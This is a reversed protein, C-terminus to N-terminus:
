VSTGLIDMVEEVTRCRLVAEAKKKADGYHLERIMCRIYAAEGPAVSFEDLGMGLLIPVAKPEGAFEGCMGVPIGAKHGAQIVYSIARLVAPHFSNFISATKRNGRDAVLLYQTLDNTGISFFDAEKALEEAMMVSAPTEIMVGTQIKKHYPIGEQELETKCEELLQKAQQLEEISIILPFLIRINGETSARLIARLQDRFMDKQELSIRIARWGLFPNEEPEFEFYPLAKDGGIDLTRVTLEAPCLKAARCYAEYQQQESPFSSGSMYLFESRFLGIGDVSHEVARQVDEVSGANGCVMVKKGDATEAPLSGARQIMQERMEYEKQKKEYEALTQEDPDIIVEGSAGDMCLCSGNPVLDMIGRVGVLAPLGLGRAMISVHSTIGGEETIFGRIYNLDLNATDSPFLDRAVLIVPEQIESFDSYSVGKLQAMFRKGVDRVDAAREKMYDDDMVEFIDALERVTCSLALEANMHGNRIKDTVGRELAQDDAILFHAGFIENKEALVELDKKVQDKADLFRKEETEAQSEAILDQLPELDPEEKVFAKGIVIGKSAAKPATLKKM